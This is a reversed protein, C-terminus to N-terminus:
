LQLTDSILATCVKTYLKRTRQSANSLKPRFIILLLMQHQRVLPDYNIMPAVVISPNM